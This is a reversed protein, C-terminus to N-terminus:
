AKPVGKIMQESIRNVIFVIFLSVFLLVFAGASAFPYSLLEVAQEYIFNSIMDFAGGGLLTPTVFSSLNYLFVIIMGAAIGPLSLPLTIEFFIKTSTAGLSLAAEELTWDISELISSVSFVMFALAGTALGIGVGLESYMLKIPEHIIHSYELSKNIIGNNGIFLMIGYMRMVYSSFFHVLLIITILIRITKNSRVMLYATPYGIILVAVTSIFSVHLSRLLYSLYFPDQFFKKYQSFTFVYQIFGLEDAKCFSLIFLAWIASFFFGIFAISPLIFTYCARKENLQRLFGRVM